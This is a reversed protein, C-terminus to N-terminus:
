PSIVPDSSIAQMHYQLGFPTVLGNADLSLSVETSTPSACSGGCTVTINVDGAVPPETLVNGTSTTACLTAPNVTLLPAADAIAKEISMPQGSECNSGTTSVGNAPSGNVLSTEISAMRSGATAGDHLASNQYALYAGAVIGFIVLFVLPAVLAFEVLTAGKEDRRRHGNRPGRHRMM